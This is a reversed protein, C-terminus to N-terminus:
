FPSDEYAEVSIGDPGAMPDAIGDMQSINVAANAYGTPLGGGAMPMSPMNPKKAQEVVRPIISEKIADIKLNPVTNQKYIEFVGEQVFAPFALDGNTVNQWGKKTKICRLLKGYIVIPKGAKDQFMPRGDRGTNLVTAINNFLETWAKIVEESDVPVYNGEDDFDELNLGYIVEEEETLERGKLVFVNLIHKLYDFIQLIKWEKEGGLTTEANSEQAMFSLTAYKRDTPNPENSAFVISLRPVELGNFSPMGSTDEGIKVMKVTVEDIHGLFLGNPLAMKHDFKLRTTGRATGLGRRPKKIAPKPADAVPTAAPNVPVSETPNEISNM